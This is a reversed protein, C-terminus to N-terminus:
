SATVTQVSLTESGYVVVYYSTGATVAQNGVLNTIAGSYSFHHTAGGALSYGTAGFLSEVQGPTGALLMLSGDPQVAFVASTPISGFASGEESGPHDITVVVMRISIPDEGSNAVTLSLSNPTLTLGSSTTNDSHNARFSEFWDHGDLSSTHGVTRLSDNVDDSPVQLARAGAALTFSPNSEDGLNLVVPQIDVLAAATASSNVKLGGVIPVELRGSSVTASYNKGMFDVTASTITFAVTNYTLSPITDSSITQSLNVLKLTDITGQGSVQVWGSDGFGAAHVAISSYTIYVATVGEPVSPPDTLLVSLVGSSRTNLLGLASGSFILMGALVLGATGYAVAKTGLKM